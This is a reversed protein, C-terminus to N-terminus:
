NSGFRCLVETKLKFVNAATSKMGEKCLARCLTEVSAAGPRLEIWTNLVKYAKERVDRENVDIQDITADCVTLRRAIHKWKTALEDSLDILEERTPIKKLREALSSGIRIYRKCM